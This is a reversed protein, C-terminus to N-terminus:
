EITYNVDPDDSVHQEEQSWGLSEPVNLDDLVDKVLDSKLGKDIGDSVSQIKEHAVDLINDVLNDFGNTNDIAIAVKAYAQEFLHNHVIDNLM